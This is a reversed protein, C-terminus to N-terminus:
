EAEGGILRKWESHIGDDTVGFYVRV